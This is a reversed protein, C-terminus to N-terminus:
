SPHIDLGSSALISCLPPLIMSLVKKLLAHVESCDGLLTFEKKFIPLQDNLKGLITPLFGLSDRLAVLDRPIAHKSVIRNTIREIDSINKLDKQVEIRKLGDQM